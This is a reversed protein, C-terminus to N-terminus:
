LPFLMERERWDGSALEHDGLQIYLGVLKPFHPGLPKSIVHHHYEQPKDGHLNTSVAREAHCSSHGEITCWESWHLVVSPWLEYGGFSTYIGVNRIFMTKMKLTGVGIVNEECVRFGWIKSISAQRVHKSTSLPLEFYRPQKTSM